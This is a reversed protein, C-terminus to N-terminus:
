FFDGAPAFYVTYSENGEDQLLRVCVGIIDYSNGCFLGSAKMIKKKTKICGVFHVDDEVSTVVGLEFKPEEDGSEFYAVVFPQGLYPMLVEPAIPHLDENSELVAFKRLKCIEIVKAEYRKTGQTVRHINVVQGLTMEREGPATVLKRSRFLSFIQGTEDLFICKRFCQCLSKM